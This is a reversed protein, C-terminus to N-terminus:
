GEAKLEVVVSDEVILDLRQGPLDEGRYQVRIPRETEFRIARESLELSVAKRYIKELFGPGLSRHVAIAAGIVRYMVEETHDDLPSSLRM